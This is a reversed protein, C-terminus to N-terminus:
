LVVSKLAVRFRQAAAGQEEAPLHACRDPHVEFAKEKFKRKVDDVSAGRQLGLEHYPCGAM